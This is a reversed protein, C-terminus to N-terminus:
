RLMEKCNWLELIVSSHNQCEAVEQGKLVKVIGGSSKPERVLSQFDSAPVRDVQTKKGRIAM